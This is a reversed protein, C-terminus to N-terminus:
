VEETCSKKGNITNPRQLEAQRTADNHFTITKTFLDILYGPVINNNVQYLITCLPNNRRIRLDPLDLVYAILM